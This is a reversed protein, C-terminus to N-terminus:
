HRVIRLSLKLPIERLLLLFGYDYAKQQQEHMLNTNM